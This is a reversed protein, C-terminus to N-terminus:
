RETEDLEAKERLEDQAKKAILKPDRDIYQIFWGKETEDVICKGERGLHKCLGTLSSWCTSNM